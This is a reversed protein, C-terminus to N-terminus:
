PLVSVKVNDVLAGYAHLSVIRDDDVTLVVIRRLAGSADRVEIAPTHNVWV